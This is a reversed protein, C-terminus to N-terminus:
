WFSPHFVNSQRWFTISFDFFYWHIKSKISEIWFWKIREECIRIDINDYEDLCHSKFIYSFVHMGTQFCKTLLFSFHTSKQFDKFIIDFVYQYCYCKMQIDLRNKSNNDVAAMLTKREKLVFMGGFTLILGTVISANKLDVMYAVTNGITTSCSTKNGDIALSARSIGSPNQSVLSDSALNDSIFLLITTLKKKIWLSRKVMLTTYM